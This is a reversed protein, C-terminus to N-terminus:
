LSRIRVALIRQTDGRSLPGVGSHNGAIRGIFCGNKPLGYEDLGGAVHQYDAVMDRHREQVLTLLAMVRAEKSGSPDQAVDLIADLVADGEPMHVLGNLRDLLRLDTSGRERRIVSAVAASGAKGCGALRELARDRRVGRVTGGQIRTAADQCHLRQDDSQAVLPAGAAVTVIIATLLFRM